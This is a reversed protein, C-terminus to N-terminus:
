ATEETERLAGRRGLVGVIYLAGALPCLWLPWVDMAFAAYAALLAWLLPIVALRWFSPGEVLLLAGLTAIVTPEPVLGAIPLERAAFGKIAWIAPYLATGALILVAALAGALGRPRAFRLGSGHLGTWAILAAEIMFLASFLPAVFNIDSFHLGHFVIGCWAWAIALLLAATVSRREDRLALVAGLAILCLVVIQAPWVQVSYDRYVAIFVEPSFSLM